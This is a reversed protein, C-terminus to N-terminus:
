INLLRYFKVGTSVFNVLIALKLNTVKLYSKIQEINKKSYYDGRKIEIIIKGEVLFDLFNRGM